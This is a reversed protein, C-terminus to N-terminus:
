SGKEGGRLRFTQKKKADELWMKWRKLEKIRIRARAIIWVHPSSSSSTPPIILDNAENFGDPNFILLSHTQFILILLFLM